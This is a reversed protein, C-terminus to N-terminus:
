RAAYGTDFTDEWKKHIHRNNIRYSLAIYFIQVNMDKYIQNGNSDKFDQNLLSQLYYKFQLNIGAPFQIGAFVSPVFYRVEDTFWATYKVKENSRSGNGSPWYKHKFQFQWEYEAGGYFYFHKDLSGIKIALPLGLNYTRFIHKMLVDEQDGFSQNENMIFGVNRLALGSYLGFNKGFDINVYQGFHLFITWRLNTSLSNGGRDAQSMQFIMEGSSSGYVQQGFSHMTFSATVILIALIKKM